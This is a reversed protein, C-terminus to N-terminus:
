FETLKKEGFMRVLTTNGERGGAVRETAVFRGKELQEIKRTFSRYSITGGKALYEQFLEGMKLGRHANVLALISKLEDDLSAYANVSFQTAKSIAARVHEGTIRRSAKEEALTGSERMLFLGQRIDGAKATHEAVLAFADADWVGPVFAYHMREELIGRTEQASYPLFEVLEPNLRSAIREDMEQVKSRYNTILFISKKYIDELVMYLMDVVDAKDIEDFVVVAKKRNVIAKLKDFLEPTKQSTILRIGLQSCMELLMKYPTNHKWCNIYFPIVADTEEELEKLVHRCAVTKGVGPAGHVFLNRGSRDALLPKIASAFQRQPAERYKLVKPIYDFDLPVTDRFLSEGEKLLNTFLSGM